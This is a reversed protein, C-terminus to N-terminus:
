YSMSIYHFNPQMLLYYYRGQVYVTLFFSVHLLSAQRILFFFFFTAKTFLNHPSRDFTNVHSIVVPRPPIWPSSMETSPTFCDLIPFAPGAEVDGVFGGDDGRMVRQRPSLFLCCRERLIFCFLVFFCVLKRVTGLVLQLTKRPLTAADYHDSSLRRGLLHPLSFEKEGATEGKGLRVLPLSLCWSEKLCLLRAIGGGSWRQGMEAARPVTIRINRSVWIGGLYIERRGKPKVKARKEVKGNEEQIKIPAWCEDKGREKANWNDGRRWVETLKRWKGSSRRRLSPCSPTTTACRRSCSGATSSMAWKRLTSGPLSLCILEPPRCDGGGGLVRGQVPFAWRYHGKKTLLEKFQGLTVVRGKVSTRYPIPEGCFYYAVTMNECVQRKGSKHRPSLLTSM